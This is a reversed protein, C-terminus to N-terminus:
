TIKKRQKALIDGVLKYDGRVAMMAQEDEEPLWHGLNYGWWPRKLKLQPLGEEEWIRRAKEMFEKKPLSVPMYPWKMTANIILRSATPMDLFRVDREAAEGPPLLSYDMLMKGPETDIRCDRHPQVRFSIAWNIADADRIDIDEDVAVIVKNIPFNDAFWKSAEDLTKWVNNQETKDIKIVTLGASGTSEHLDIEQVWPQGLDRTLYKHLNGALGVDRIMSSESPPFQSLFVQFIPSKRHTICKVTFYPMNDRQGMYGHFEGFPAEPEVEDASIIGEIVIEAYAPVELDVTKCKVLELPEGAIAGACAFEDLEYPIRSVSVYGISPPGGIVIAAELPRGMERCKALYRAMHQLESIFMVGTRTPSKVHARYTGVNVIGTEPDKSVWYPSTFFPAVDFGPTSIPTPFEELGGHELLGDGIHVEEHVPGDGIIIPKIPNLQIEDWKEPIKDVDCSMGISYVERNAGLACAVVPINYRRGKSDVVNEFIFAKREEEPLGRFQLRVIPHLETDKNVERKIRVLKGRDELVKLYERLDKYYAM